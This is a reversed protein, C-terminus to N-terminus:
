KQLHISKQKTHKIHKPSTYEKPTTNTTIQQSEGRKAVHKKTVCPPTSPPIGSRAHASSICSFAIPIHSPGRLSRLSRPHSRLSSRTHCPLRPQSTPAGPVVLGVHPRGCSAVFQQHFIGPSSTTAGWTFNRQNRAGTHFQGCFCQM